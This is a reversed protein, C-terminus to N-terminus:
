CGSLPGQDHAIEVISECGAEGLELKPSLAPRAARGPAAPPEEDLWEQVAAITEEPTEALHPVDHMRAFGPGERAEVALAWSRLAAILRADPPAADRGLLLARRVTSAGADEIDTAGLAGLTEAGVLFGGAHLGDEEPLGPLRDAELRAFAKLERVLARGRATAVM